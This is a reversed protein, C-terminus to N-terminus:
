FEFREVSMRIAKALNLRKASLRKQTMLVHTLIQANLYTQRTM